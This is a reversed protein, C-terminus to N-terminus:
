GGQCNAFSQFGCANGISTGNARGTAMGSLRWGARWFNSILGDADNITETGEFPQPRNLLVAGSGFFPEVYGRVPGFGQWVASAIRSKGGFFPYPSKYAPAEMCATL